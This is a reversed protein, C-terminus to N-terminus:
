SYREARVRKMHISYRTDKYSLYRYKELDNFANLYALKKYDLNFMALLYISLRFDLPSLIHSKQSGGRGMNIQYGNINAFLNKIGLYGGNRLIYLSHKNYDLFNVKSNLLAIFQEQKLETYSIKSGNDEKLVKMNELNDDISFIISEKIGMYGLIQSLKLLNIYNLEKVVVMKAILNGVKGKCYNEYNLTLTFVVDSEDIPLELNENIRRDLITEEINFGNNSEYGYEM